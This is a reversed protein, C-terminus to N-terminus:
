ASRAREELSDRPGAGFSYRQAHINSHPQYGRCDVAVRSRGFADGETRLRM